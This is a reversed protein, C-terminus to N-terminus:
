ECEALINKFVGNPVVSTGPKSVVYAGCKVAVCASKVPDMDLAKCYAIAAVVTDGAGQVDYVPVKEAKVDITDGSFHIRIGREGMTEYICDVVPKYDMQLYEKLNPTIAHTYNYLFSNPPHPDVIIPAGDASEIIKSISDKSIFGKGYDSIVVVDFSDRITGGVNVQVIKEKDCRLLQQGSDLDVMRTKVITKYNESQVIRCMISSSKIMSILVKSDGGSGTATWCTVDAGMTVLNRAVNGCGGLEHEVSEVNLIPVPAEPSIRNVYGRIYRDLMIDGVVLIRM